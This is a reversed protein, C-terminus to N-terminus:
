YVQFTVSARGQGLRQRSTVHWHSESSTPPDSGVVLVIVEVLVLGTRLGPPASAATVLTRVCLEKNEGRVSLRGLPSWACLFSCSAGTRCGRSGVLASCSQKFCTSGSQTTLPM